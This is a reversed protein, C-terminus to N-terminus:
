APVLEREARLWNAHPDGGEELHIYYARTAIQEHTVDATTKRTTRRPAPKSTTTKTLKPVHIGKESQNVARM